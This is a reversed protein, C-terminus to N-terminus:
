RMLLMLALTAFAAAGVLFQPVRILRLRAMSSEVVGVLIAVLLMGGLFATMDTAASGTRVPVAIGVLVAGIAWFKLASGYLLFALDPGSHDLVMVEHIMTLELHTSPDDVPIRSCETLLVAFVAAAVLVLAPGARSWAQPTLAGLMGTLSASGTALATAALAIFLAPEAFTAFTAERSAGMGEFSSGTDLAGLMTFWRGAGLIFALFLLDGPFAIAAGVGGAPLLALAAASSSLAVVPAARFVWTTTRSYVTGKRLLKLLDAYNQFLPPGSRGAFFAKTRAVVGLLLPSFVLGLIPPLLSRESM